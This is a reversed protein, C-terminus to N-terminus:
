EELKYTPVIKVVQWETFEWRERIEGDGIGMFKTRYELVPKDKATKINWRLEILQEVINGKQVITSLATV